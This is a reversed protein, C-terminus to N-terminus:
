ICSGLLLNEMVLKVNANRLIMDRSHAIGDMMQVIEIAKENDKQSDNMLVLEARAALELNQLKTNLEEKDKSLKDAYYIKEYIDQSKYVRFFDDVFKLTDEVKDLNQSLNFAVGARGAALKSITIAEAKKIGLDGNLLEFIQKQPALGFNISRARSVITPLLNRPNETTLIIVTHEAPEELTKLFSNLAHSTLREAHSILAVKAKGRYSKLELSGVLDRIEDVLVTEKDIYFFDPHNGSNILKCSTCDDCSMPNEGECLLLKAFYIGIRTKGVSEPGCFLYAHSLNDTAVSKELYKVTTANGVFNKM